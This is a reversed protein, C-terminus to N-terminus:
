PRRTSSYCTQIWPTTPDPAYCYWKVSKAESVAPKVVGVALVGVVAALAIATILGVKKM